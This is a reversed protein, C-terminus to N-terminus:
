EPELNLAKNRRYRIGILLEYINRFIFQSQIRSTFYFFYYIYNCIIHDKEFEKLRGLVLSLSYGQLNQVFDDESSSAALAATIQAKQNLFVCNQPDAVQLYKPNTKFWTIISERTAKTHFRSKPL